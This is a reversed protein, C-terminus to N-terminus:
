LSESTITHVETYTITFEYGRRKLEEMLERPTFDQIRLNRANIADVAQQKLKKKKDKGEAVLKVHCDKCVSTVGWGNKYFSEIPLEKGCCKCVKTTVDEM